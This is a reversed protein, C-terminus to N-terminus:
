KKSTKVLLETLKGLSAQVRKLKAVAEIETDASFAGIKVLSRFCFALIPEKKISDYTQKLEDYCLDMKNLLKITSAAGSEQLRMEFSSLDLGDPVLTHSKKLFLLLCGLDSNEDKTALVYLSSWANNRILTGVDNTLLIELIRLPDKSYMLEYVTDVTSTNRGKELLPWTTYIVENVITNMRVMAQQDVTAAVGIPISLAISNAIVSIMDAPYYLPYLKCKALQIARTAIILRKITGLRRGSLAIQLKKLNANNTKDDKKCEKDIIDSIKILITAINDRYDPEIDFYVQHAIQMLQTIKSGAEVLVKNIGNNKTDLDFDSSGWHRLGPGELSGIRAIIARKDGENLDSFPAARVYIAHRDVLADGLKSTGVDGYPNMTSIINVTGTPVSNISRSRLIELLNSQREETTRNIEDLVVLQKGWITSSGHIFSIRPPSAKMANIDPYGILEEYTLHPASYITFDFKKDKSRAYEKLAAGIVLGLESKATGPPGIMLVPEGQLVCALIANENAESLGYIKLENFLSM